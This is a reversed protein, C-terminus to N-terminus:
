GVRRESPWNSRNDHTCRGKKEKERGYVKPIDFSERIRLRAHVCSKKEKLTASVEENKIEGFVLCDSFACALGLRIIWFGIKDTETNGVYLQLLLLEGRPNLSTSSLGVAYHQFASLPCSNPYITINIYIIFM